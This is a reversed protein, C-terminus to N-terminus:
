QSAAWPRAVGRKRAAADIEARHARYVAAWDLIEFPAFPDYNAAGDDALAALGGVAVDIVSQPLAPTQPARRRRM